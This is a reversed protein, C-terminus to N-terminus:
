YESITVLLLYNVILATGIFHEPFSLYPNLVLIRRLSLLYFVM